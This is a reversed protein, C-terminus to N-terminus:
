YIISVKEWKKGVRVSYGNLKDANPHKRLWLKHSIRTWTPAIRVDTLADWVPPVNRMEKCAQIVYWGFREQLRCYDECNQFQQKFPGVCICNQFCIWELEPDSHFHVEFPPFGTSKSWNKALKRFYEYMKEIWHYEYPYDIGFVHINPVFCLCLKKSVYDPKGM